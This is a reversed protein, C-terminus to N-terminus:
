GVAHHARSEPDPVQAFEDCVLHQGLEELPRAAQLEDRRADSPLRIVLAHLVTENGKAALLFLLHTCRHRRRTKYTTFAFLAEYGNM